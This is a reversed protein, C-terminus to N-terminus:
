TKYLKKSLILISVIHLRNSSSMVAISQLKLECVSFYIKCFLYTYRKTFICKLCLFVYVFLM